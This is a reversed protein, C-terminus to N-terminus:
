KYNTEKLVLVNILRNEKILDLGYNNLEKKLKDIEFDDIASTSIKIDINGIYNTENIFPTPIGKAEAAVSLVNVFNNFPKNKMFRISDNTMIWFNTAPKGGKSQLDYKKKSIKTLILCDVKRKEILGHIEFYRSLDQQMKKYLQNSESPPIMLEYNYCYKEIWEDLENNNSPFSYKFKNNVKLVVSNSANFDYKGNESFATIFLQRISVDTQTIKNPKENGTTSSAANSFTVGSISHMLLSYSVVKDSWRGKSIAMLPSDFSYDKEYEKQALSISDGNLFKEIHEATANYGNTIYRVNGTSDIWVHHPVYVHPFYNSLITDQTVFPISPIKLYKKLRAFFRITSDKSERNVAIFQIKGAFKKQLSDIESFAHLCATCGTGWFDLILLKGKFDFLNAHSVPYNIIRNLEINPCRDGIKIEQAKITIVSIFAIITVIYKKQNFKMIKFKDM